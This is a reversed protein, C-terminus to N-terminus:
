DLAGDLARVKVWELRVKEDGGLAVHAQVVERTLREELCKDGADFPDGTKVHMGGAVMEDHAAVVTFQAPEVELQAVFRVLHESVVSTRDPGHAEVRGEREQRRARVVARDLHEMRSHVVVEHGVREDDREFDEPGGRSRTDMDDRVTQAYKINMPEM